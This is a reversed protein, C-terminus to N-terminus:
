GAVLPQPDGVVGDALGAQLLDQGGAGVQQEVLAHEGLHVLAPLVLRFLSQAPGLALGSPAAWATLFVVFGPQPHTCAAGRCDGGGPTNQSCTGGPLLHGWCLGFRGSGSALAGQM